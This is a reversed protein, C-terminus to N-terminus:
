FRIAWGLFVSDTESGVDVRTDNRAYAIRVSQTAGVRFGFSGGWIVTSREDDKEEGNITSEGGWSYGAGASLWWAADFTRVVHAQAVFQPDQEVQNGNFFEDHDGFFLATGTLEYSWAGATRLVGLQTGVSWRNQGLNILREENYDGLPARVEVAAGVSTQAMHERRYAAFEASSLAPAGVLNVSFRV